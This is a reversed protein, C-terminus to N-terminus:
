FQIWCNHNRRNWDAQYSLDNKYNDEHNRWGQKAHLPIAKWAGEYASTIGMEWLFWGFSHSPKIPKLKWKDIDLPGVDPEVKPKPAEKPAQQKGKTIKMERGQDHGLVHDFRKKM